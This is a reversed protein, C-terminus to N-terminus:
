RSAFGGAKNFARLSTELAHVPPYVAHQVCNVLLPGEGGVDLLGKSASIEAGRAHLVM